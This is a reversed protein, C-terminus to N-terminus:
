GIDLFQQRRPQEVAGLMRQSETGHLVQGPERVLRPERERPYAHDVRARRLVILRVPPHAAQLARQLHRGRVDDRLDGSRPQPTTTTRPERGADLPVGDELGLTVQLEDAAVGVFAVASSEGVPHQHLAVREREDFPHGDGSV